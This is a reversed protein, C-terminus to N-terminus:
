FFIKQTQKTRLVKYFTGLYSNKSDSLARWIRRHCSVRARSEIYITKFSQCKKWFISPYCRTEVSVLSPDRKHQLGILCVRGRKHYIKSQHCQGPYQKRYSHKALPHFRQRPLRQHITQTSFYRTRLQSSWRFCCHTILLTTTQVRAVLIAFASALVRCKLHKSFNVCVNYMTTYKRRKRSL